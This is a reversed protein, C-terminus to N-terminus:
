EFVEVRLDRLARLNGWVAGRMVRAGDERGESFKDRRKDFYGDVFEGDGFAGGETMYRIRCRLAKWLPIRGGSKMETLAEQRSFGVRMPDGQENKTGREVGVGFLLKRYEAGVQRWSVNEDRRELAIGLGLRASARGGVAEGYGCFAYDAPDEVLGARVPNLDIYAAMTLIAEESGGVMVSKFRDEWLTGKRGEKWNYWRSFRQKLEQMFCALSGRRRLYGNRIKEKKADFNWADCNALEAALRNAAKRGYLPRVLDILEEDSVDEAPVVEKEAPLELLVHFHNSMVCFTVIRVGMLHELGRMTRVFFRKEEDGFIFRGDVVRSMCHQYSRVDEEIERKLRM